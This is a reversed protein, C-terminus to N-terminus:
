KKLQAKLEEIEKQQEQIAKWLIYILKSEHLNMYDMNEGTANENDVLKFGNIEVDQVDQAIIGISPLDSEKYKFSYLPIKKILDLAKLNLSKFDKKARYDSTANFFLAECQQDSHIKDNVILQKSITCNGENNIVLRNNNNQKITIASNTGDLTLGVGTIYLLSNATLAHYNIDLKNTNEQTLAGNSFTAKAYFGFDKSIHGNAMDSTLIHGYSVGSGWASQNSLWIVPLNAMDNTESTGQTTATSRIFTYISSNNEGSSMIKIHKWFVM